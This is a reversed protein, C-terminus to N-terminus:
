KQHCKQCLMMTAGAVDRGFFVQNAGGHPNHCSACSLQKGLRSPDGVGSLPHSGLIGSVVHRDLKVKAHCGVCVDNIAGLMQAPHDSAHADHCVSCMGLQVPGHVFKSNKFEKVKDLHCKNCSGAQGGNSKYKAPRSLPDHCVTCRFVGAPGHVNKKNLMRKHCSACPNLDASSEKLQEKTPQMNHCPACLAERQPTHMVFPRFGGPPLAYPNKQYFIEAATTRVVEGRSYGELKINNKGAAFDPELILFDAFVAKYQASSIDIIDSKLGNIGVTLGDLSPEVGGKIILFNSHVIFTGDEPYILDLAEAPSVLFIGIFFVLLFYRNLLEM